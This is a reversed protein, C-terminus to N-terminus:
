EDNGESINDLRSKLKMLASEYGANWRSHRQVYDEQLEDILDRIDSVAEDYGDQYGADGGCSYCSPEDNGRKEKAEGVTMTEGNALKRANEQLREKLDDMDCEGCICQLDIEDNSVAIVATAVAM